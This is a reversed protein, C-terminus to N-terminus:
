NAENLNIPANNEYLKHGPKKYLFKCKSVLIFINSSYLFNVICKKFVKIQNLVPKSVSRRKDNDYMKIDDHM